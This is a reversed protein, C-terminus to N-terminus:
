INPRGGRRAVWGEEEEWGEGRGGRGSGGGRASGDLSAAFEGSTGAKYDGHFLGRMTSGHPAPQKEETVADVDDPWINSGRVETVAILDRKALDAAGRWLVALSFMIDVVPDGLRAGGALM